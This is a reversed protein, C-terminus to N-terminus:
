IIILNCIALKWRRKLADAASTDGAPKLGPRFASQSASPPTLSGSPGPMVDMELKPKKKYPRKVKQPCYLWVHKM